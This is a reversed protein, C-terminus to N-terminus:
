SDAGSHQQNLQRQQQQQQQQQQQMQFLLMAQQQPTLHQLAPHVHHQQQQQQQQQHQAVLAQWVAPNQYQLQQIQQMSPMGQGMGPHSSTGFAPSSMMGAPAAAYQQQQQQQQALAVALQHRQQQQHRLLMLMQEQNLAAAPGHGPLTPHEGMSQMAATLMPRPMTATPEPKVGVGPSPMVSASVPVAAAAASFASAQAAAHATTRPASAMSSVTSAALAATMGQAPGRLQPQQLHEKAPPPPSHPLTEADSVANAQTSPQRRAAPSPQQEQEPFLKSLKQPLLFHFAVDNAVQVFAQSHLPQPLSGPEVLEGDIQVGNKGLVELEFRGTAHIDTHILLSLLPILYPASITQPAPSPLCRVICHGTNTCSAYKGAQFNYFIRAHQRSVSMMDGLVLDVSGAKSKRGMLCEYKRMTYDINQGVLKAFGARQLRPDNAAVPM